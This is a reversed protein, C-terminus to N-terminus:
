FTKDGRRPESLARELPWKDLRELLSANWRECVKIGRGGYNKYDRAKQNSCRRLMNAWATYTPTRLAHGHKFHSRGLNACLEDNYCGCSKVKGTKLANTKFVTSKGCDCVCRWVGGGDIRDLVTLRHVRKGSLDIAPWRSM